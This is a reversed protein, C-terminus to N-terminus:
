VETDPSQIAELSFERGAPWSLVGHLSVYQRTDRLGVYVSHVSSKSNWKQTKTHKDDPDVSRHSWLAQSVSHRVSVLHPGTVLHGSELTM